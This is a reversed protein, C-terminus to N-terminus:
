VDPQPLVRFVGNSDPNFDVVSNIAELNIPGYVHPFVDGDVNEWRVECTLKAPDIWLLVLGAEGLYLRNAVGLVQDPHSCHIFGEVAVSSALYFGVAQATSWEARHCIHTILDADILTEPEM